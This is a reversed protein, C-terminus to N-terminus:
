PNGAAAKAKEEDNAKALTDCVMYLGNRNLNRSYKSDLYLIPYSVDAGGFNRSEEILRAHLAPKVHSAGGGYVYVVEVYSGVSSMIKTFEQIVEEAFDECEENVINQVKDYRGKVLASPESELFDALAKRSAFPIGAARVRTLVNALVNGYGRKYTASADPNFQGDRFVPFNVTGEGIDISLTNKAALVDKATIGDLHDGHNRADQLMAEMLPEGMLSIAYQASEGEALVQVDEVHIRVRVLDEFNHITVMHDAQMYRSAYEKRYDKYELIPLALGLRVSVDVIDKPIAHDREWVDQLAKAAVVGLVLVPSLEDVAKSATSNVDFEDLGKGSELGRFGFLRRDPKSIMPSSFSAEMRNYINDMTSQIGDPKVKIDSTSRVIAVGSPLDINTPRGSLGRAQGKVYGNGIDLGAVINLRSM